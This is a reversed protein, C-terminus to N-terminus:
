KPFCDECDEDHCHFNAVYGLKGFAKMEAAQCDAHRNCTNDGYAKLQAESKEPFNPNPEGARACWGCYGGPALPAIQRRCRNCVPRLTPKGTSVDIPPPLKYDHLKVDSPTVALKLIRAWREPYTRKEKVWKDDHTLIAGGIRFEANLAAVWERDRDTIVLPEDTVGPVVALAPVGNWDLCVATMGAYRMRPSGEVEHVLAGRLFTAFGTTSYDAPGDLEETTYWKGTTKFFDIRIKM